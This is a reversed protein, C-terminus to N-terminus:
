LFLNAFLEEKEKKKSDEEENGIKDAEVKISNIAQDINNQVEEIKDAFAMPVPLSSIIKQDQLKDYRAYLSGKLLLNYEHPTM